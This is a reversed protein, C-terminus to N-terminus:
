DLETTNKYDFMPLSCKSLNDDKDSNKEINESTNRSLFILSPIRKLIKNLEASLM